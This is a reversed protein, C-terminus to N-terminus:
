NVAIPRIMSGTAGKIKLPLVVFMFEYVKDKALDELYPFEMIHIGNEILM